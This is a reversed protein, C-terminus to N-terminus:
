LPFDDGHALGIDVGQGADAVINIGGIPVGQDSIGIHRHNIGAIIVFNGDAGELASNIGFGM